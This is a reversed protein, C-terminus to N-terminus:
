TQFRTAFKPPSMRARLPHFRGTGVAEALSPGRKRIECRPGGDEIRLPIHQPCKPLDFLFRTMELLRQKAFKSRGLYDRNLNSIM